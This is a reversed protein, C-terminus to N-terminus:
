SNKNLKVHKRLAKKLNSNKRLDEPRRGKNDKLLPDAVHKLPMEIGKLVQYSV